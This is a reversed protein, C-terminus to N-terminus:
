ASRLPAEEAPAPPGTEGPPPEAYLIPKTKPMPRLHELIFALGCAAMLVAVFVIVPITKGRGGVLVQRNPRSLPEVRVRAAEPIRADNQQRHVFTLLANATRQALMASAKPTPGLARVSILPLIPPSSLPPAPVPEVVVLRANARGVISQVFDGKAFESYLTAFSALRSPDSEPIPPADDRGSPLYEPATRGWPFGRQTVFLRAESEWVESQRYSFTLGRDGFSVRVYSFFALTFGLCLGALVILRFRWLVRLYLPFDM